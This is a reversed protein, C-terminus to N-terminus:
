PGALPQEVEEAAASAWLWALGQGLSGADEVVERGGADMPLGSGMVLEDFECRQKIITTLYAPMAQAISQRAAMLTDRTAKQLEKPLIQMIIIKRTHDNIGVDGTAKYDDHLKEFHDFVGPDDRLNKAAHPTGSTIRNQLQIAHVEPKQPDHKESSAAGRRSAM